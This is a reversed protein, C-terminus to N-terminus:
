RKKPKKKGSSKRAGGKKKAPKRGTSPFKIPEAPAALDSPDAMGILQSLMDMPGRPLEDGLPEQTETTKLFLESEAAFDDDSVSDPPTWRHVFDYKWLSTGFAKIVDKKLVDVTEMIDRHMSDTVIEKSLLFDYLYVSGWLISIGRAQRLSLFGGLM